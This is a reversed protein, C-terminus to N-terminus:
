GCMGRAIGYRVKPKIASGKVHNDHVMCLTGVPVYYSLERAVQRRSYQGRYFHEIPLQVDGDIPLAVDTSTVPFRNLLFEADAAARQWWSEPLNSSFLLNKVTIEVISVAVEAYGNEEAHRDPSVYIMKVIGGPMTRCM